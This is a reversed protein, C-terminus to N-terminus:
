AHAAGLPALRRLAGVRDAFAAAFADIDAPTNGPGLSVRVAGYALEREIGMRMLVHSPEARGTGCASGSSIAFGAEDLLNVLTGGDIGEVSFFVTNPLRRVGTGFIVLGPVAALRGELRDRLAALRRGNAERDAAAREAALGFGVIAAVNETGSRRGREQGGGHLLPELYLARDVILAGAGKPGGFKHASLSMMHAGCGAFNIEVKGAAQVADTHFLAGRRRAAAALPAVDQVVGTENNAIMVSALRVGADLCAEFADVTVRGHDDVEIELVRWGLGEMAWAPGLVSAHEVASVALAAAPLTAAAGKIALNNAETGGSTFVVEEARSGALRAVQERAREVAERAARGPAHRSSPNGRADRLFPLMAELVEPDIPSTANHDLYVTM